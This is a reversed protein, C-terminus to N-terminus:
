TKGVTCGKTMELLLELLALEPVVNPPLGNPIRVLVLNRLPPYIIKHPEIMHVVIVLGRNSELDM